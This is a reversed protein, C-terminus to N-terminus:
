GELFRRLRKALVERDKLECEWLILVRWGLKRLALLAAHDRQKNRTIKKTWYVRNSAPVRAGRVCSHGHWFCGHVFVVRRRSVFALDPRGPLKKKHLAYRFGLSHALRRVAMEPRTNTARVAAMCARRQAPTLVDSM